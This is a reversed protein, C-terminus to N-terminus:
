LTNTDVVQDDSITSVRQLMLPDVENAIAQVHGDLFVFNSASGHDSGFQEKLNAIGCGSNTPVTGHAMGCATGRQVTEARDGSFFATDGQHYHMMVQDMGPNAQRAEDETPIYREGVALSQSTGDTVSKMSNRSFTYLAGGDVGPPEGNPNDYGFNFKLGANGAYDGGAAVSTAEPLPPKDNNDFNRDAAPQRRSPCYFMDVPTRMALANRIDDVRVSKILAMYLNNQELYPLLEFAWSVGFETVGSDTSAVPLGVRGSPFLKKSDHRSQLAIGIQKLNNVCQNRRASERAAQIAPLLLAILTGIIAIVVLLEV